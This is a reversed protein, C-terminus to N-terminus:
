LGYSSLSANGIRNRHLGYIFGDCQLHSPITTFAGKFGNAKLISIASDNSSGYPYAFITEGYGLHNELQEKATIIESQEKEFSDSPLSSHSWTHDYAFVLGSGTMEKLNNWSLYGPNEMLGTPIMLSLKIGYQKAIPYAFQYVDAYGDDITVVIPKGALPSHALLADVLQEASYSTYNHTSLYAMQEGFINADVTLAAHKEEKAQTMPEIHHYMVVPVNLCFGVPMVPKKTPAITPSPSRISLPRSYPTVSIKQSPEHKLDSVGRILKDNEPKVKNLNIVVGLLIALLM